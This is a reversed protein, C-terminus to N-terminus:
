AKLAKSCAYVDWWALFSDREDSGQWSICESAFYWRGISSVCYRAGYDMRYLISDM